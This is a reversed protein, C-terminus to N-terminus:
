RLSRPTVRTLRVSTVSVDPTFMLLTSNNVVNKDGREREETEWPPFSSLASVSTIRQTRQMGLGIDGRGRESREEMGGFEEDEEEEGWGGSNRKRRKEGAM